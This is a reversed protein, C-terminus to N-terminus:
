KLFFIVIVLGDVVRRPLPASSFVAENTIDPAQVLPPGSVYYWVPGFRSNVESVPVPKFRTQFRRRSFSLPQPVDRRALFSPTFAATM